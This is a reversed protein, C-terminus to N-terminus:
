LDKRLLSYFDSDELLSPHPDSNCHAVTVLSSSHVPSLTVSKRQLAPRVRKRKQERGM